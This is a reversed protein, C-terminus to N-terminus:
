KGQGPKEMAKLKLFEEVGTEMLRGGVTPIEICVRFHVTTLQAPDLHFPKAYWIAHLKLKIEDM